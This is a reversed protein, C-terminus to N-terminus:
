SIYFGREDHPKPRYLMIATGLILGARYAQGHDNWNTGTMLASYLRRLPQDTNRLAMLNPITEEVWEIVKKVDDDIKKCAEEYTMELKSM